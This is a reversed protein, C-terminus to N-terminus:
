WMMLTKKLFIDGCELTYLNSLQPRVMDLLRLLYAGGLCPPVERFRNNNLRLEVICHM